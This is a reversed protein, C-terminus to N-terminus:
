GSVVERVVTAEAGQEGGAGADPCPGLDVTAERPEFSRNVLVAVTDAVAREGEDAAPRVLGFVDDGSSVARFGGDVFHPLSRRLGIANRYIAMTDPDEHGWPYPGRNYPDAYGEMGAEDGYYVSPVGPMTMQVLTALWLRAKALGRASDDLRFAARQGDGMRAPDPAGGLYTLLRMRDHSGLLNLSSYFADHPYNEHLSELTEALAPAGLQGMVFPLLADRLPYNMAGDLEDGLLYHRLKGYSIKNSADEWVEGLVLADPRAETAAAHIARLFDESLEDAVDLRWGRAGARLWRRVM